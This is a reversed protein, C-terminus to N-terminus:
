GNTAITLGNIYLMIRYLHYKVDGGSIIKEYNADKDYNWIVNRIVDNHGELVSDLSFSNIDSGFNNEKCSWIKILGDNGATLFRLPSLNNEPSSLVAWCVQTVGFTNADLKVVIWHEDLNSYIVEINM